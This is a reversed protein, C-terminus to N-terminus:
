MLGPIDLGGTLKSMEQKAVEQAKELAQNVAVLVMDELLQADSSNLVQPDIKISDIMGNCRAVVKIAGGGATVEVTKKALEAQLQQAQAQLRAAQKVIKGISSM